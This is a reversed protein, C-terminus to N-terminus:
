KPQQKAVLLKLRENEAELEAIRKNLTPVTEQILIQYKDLMSDTVPGTEERRAEV